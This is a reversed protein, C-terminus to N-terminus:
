RARQPPDPDRSPARAREAAPTPAAPGRVRAESRIIEHLIGAAVQERDTRPPPMGDVFKRVDSALIREGQVDLREATREWGRVVETRTRMLTAKGAESSLRGVRIENGVQRALKEMFTSKGRITARHIPTKKSGKAQGRIARTTANAAVGRARLEKAFDERWARLTAKRIYLREGQESKAKVVLHVHPHGQHTHLVMAYRHKGAFQNAAFTKAAALLQCAKIRKLLLSM